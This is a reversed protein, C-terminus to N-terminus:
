KSIGKWTLPSAKSPDVDVHFHKTAVEFRKFGALGLAWALQIAEDEGTPRRLDAALGKTHASTPQSGIRINDEPNRYGSTIIIPFNCYERASDLKDVLDLSLGDVDKDSFFKAM